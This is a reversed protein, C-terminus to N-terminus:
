FSFGVGLWPGHQTANWENEGENYKMYLARYGGQLSFLPTIQWNVFANGNLALDSANGIGFGGIDGRLGLFWNKALPFFVRGGVIPDVFTLTDDRELARSPIAIEGYISNLRGGIFVDAAVPRWALRYPIAVEILSQKIKIQRRGPVAGGSHDREVEFDNYFGDVMVGWHGKFGEYHAGFFFKANSWFDSFSNNIDSEIGKVKIDGNIIQGWGYVSLFSKWHDSKDLVEASALSTFLFIFLGVFGLVLNAKKFGNM